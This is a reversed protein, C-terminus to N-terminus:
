QGNCGNSRRVRRMWRTDARLSPLKEFRSITDSRRARENSTARASRSGRKRADREVEHTTGLAAELRLDM